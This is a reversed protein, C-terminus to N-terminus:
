HIITKLKGLYYYKKNQENKIKKACQECYLQSENAKMFRTTCNECQITNGLNRVLNIYIIDGFASWLSEKFTSNNSYLYEILVDVIYSESKHLKLLEKKLYKNFNLDSKDDFKVMINHKNRNIEVYRKILNDSVIVHPNNMLNKYDVKGAVNKFRIPKDPIIKYLKNVTSDNLPEVQKVEKDKAYIFFHAM